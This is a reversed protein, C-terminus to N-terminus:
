DPSAESITRPGSVFFRIGLTTELTWLPSSAGLNNDPGVAFDDASNFVVHVQQRLFGDLHSGIRHGVALGANAAVYTNTMKTEYLRDVSMTSGGAAITANLSWPSAANRLLAIEVGASYYWFTTGPFSSCDDSTSQSEDFELCTLNAGSLPEFEVSARLAVKPSLWFSAGVGFSGGLSAANSLNGLPVALGAQGELSVAMFGQPGEENPTDSAAQSDQVTRDTHPSVPPESSARTQAEVTSALALEVGLFLMVVIAFRNM